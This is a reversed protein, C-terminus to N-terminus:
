RKGFLLSGIRVITSGEEVATEYDGSMGMSIEKFAPADSFFEEKLRDFHGRLSQFESRVQEKDSTFTAMGMVGCIRVNTLAAFADGRLYELVEDVNQWGFKSEEEAIHFQLLCDISRNNKKAEKDIEKLLRASDASHILAAFPAIEKVKNRQLHGIIHWNIDKPLAHYKEAAEAARNEGFDRQGKDYMAQIAEVPKTKSVAILKTDTAFLQTKIHELM